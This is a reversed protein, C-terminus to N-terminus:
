RYYKEKKMGMGEENGKIDKAASHRSTIQKGYSGEKAQTGM